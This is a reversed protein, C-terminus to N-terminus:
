VVGRGLDELTADRWRLVVSGTDLPDCGDMVNVPTEVQLILKRRFFSVRYRTRRGAERPPPTPTSDFERVANDLVKVYANFGTHKRCIKCTVDNPNHTTQMQPSTSNMKCLTNAYKHRKGMSGYEAGQQDHFLHVKRPEHYFM